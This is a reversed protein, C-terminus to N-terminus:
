YSGYYSCGGVGKEEVIVNFFSMGLSTVLPVRMKLSGTLDTFRSSVQQLLMIGHSLYRAGSANFLDTWQIPDFLETRFEPAFDQYEFNPPYNKRMFKVYDPNKVSKWQWWFWENKFSPVSYIGWTIFVGFKSQDYWAPLPRSDISNWTPAYPASDVCGEQRFTVIVSLVHVVLTTLNGIGRKAMNRSIVHLQLLDM